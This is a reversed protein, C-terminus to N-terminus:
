GPLLRNVWRRLDEPDVPKSVWGTIPERRKAPFDVAKRTSLILIPLYRHQPFNRVAAALELGDVQPMELDSLLLDVPTTALINLAEVGDVASLVKVDPRDLVHTVWHRISPSDDVHLIVSAM